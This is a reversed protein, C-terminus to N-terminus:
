VVGPVFILKPDDKVKSNFDSDQHFMCGFPAQNLHNSAVAAPPHGNWSTKWSMVSKDQHLAQTIHFSIMGVQIGSFLFLLLSNVPCRYFAITVGCVSLFARSGVM